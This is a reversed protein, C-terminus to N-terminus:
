VKYLIPNTCLDTLEGKREFYTATNNIENYEFLRYLVFKASDQISRELEHHTIYFPTDFNSVTTKVEIYIEHGTEDYSLIDYGLGDGQTKSIHNPKKKIGLLKLKKQEYQLVLLEGLDGVRKNEKENDLYKPFSGKLLRKDSKMSITKNVRELSDNKPTLFDGWLAELEAAFEPGIKTGSPEPTWNVKSLNGSNLLDLGLLPEVEPNRIVEFDIWVKHVLKGNGSFHESLFSNSTVFGAAMIGKPKVGLRMLFARDGPQVQKHSIISWKETVRGTTNIQEISQELNTWPWNKPNWTFLFTKM